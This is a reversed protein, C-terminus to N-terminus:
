CSCFFIKFIVFGAIAGLVGGFMLGSAMYFFRSWRDDSDRRLEYNKLANELEKDVADM